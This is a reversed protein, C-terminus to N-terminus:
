NTRCQFCAEGCLKEYKYLRIPSNSKYDYVKQTILQPVLANFTINDSCRVLNTFIKQFSNGHNTIVDM